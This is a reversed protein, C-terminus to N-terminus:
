KYIIERRMVSVASREVGLELCEALTSIVLEPSLNSASGTDLLATVFLAEAEPVFDIQRIMPKIDVEALEKKKKQKKWAIIKEQGMYRDKIEQGTMGLPAKLPIAIIYEAAETRAALTKKSADAKQCSLLSLGEPMMDQLAQRLAEGECEEDTEFEFLENMGWYGLSLAQAFGIKPHPHFGQSYSLRIGARKFCRKFLKIMDLHSIYCITGTKSFTLIYKFM